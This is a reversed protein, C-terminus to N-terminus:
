EARLVLGFLVKPLASNGVTCKTHAFSIFENMSEERRSKKAVNYHQVGFIFQVLACFYM